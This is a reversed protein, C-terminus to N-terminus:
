SAAGPGAPRRAEVPREVHVQVGDRLRQMARQLAERERESLWAARLERRAEDLSPSAEPTQEHVWVLHWGYSSALPGSWEGAPARMAGAAFRAGLRAALERESWAPLQSELLFPDSHEAAREPPTEDARLRELLARAQAEGADGRRDRSFFVHGLRVRAPRRFREPDRRLLGELEADSPEGARAAASVALRMREVLRRRVVLDSRDMGLALAQELLDEPEGEAGLFRLNQILRRQVVPDSESWGMARAERVLLEEDVWAQIRTELEAPSPPRGSLREAEDALRRVEAAPVTVSHSAPGAGAPALLARGAFLLGGLAFFRLLLGPTRSV